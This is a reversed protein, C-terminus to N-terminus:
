GAFPVYFAIRCLSDFSGSRPPLRLLTFLVFTVLLSRAAYGFAAFSRTYGRLAFLLWFATPHLLRAFVYVHMYVLRRLAPAYIM